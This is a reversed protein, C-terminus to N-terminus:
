IQYALKERSRSSRRRDAALQVGDICKGSGRGGDRERKEDRKRVCAQESGKTQGM